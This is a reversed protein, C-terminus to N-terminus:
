QQIEKIEIKAFIFDIATVNFEVSLYGQGNPLANLQTEGLWSLQFSQDRTKQVKKTETWLPSGFNELPTNPIGTYFPDSVGNQLVLLELANPEYQCNLQDSNEFERKSSGKLYQQERLHEYCLQYLCQQNEWHSVAIRRLKSKRMVDIYRDQSTPVACLSALEQQWYLPHENVLSSSHIYIHPDSSKGHLTLIFHTQGTLNPIRKVPISFRFDLQGPTELSKSKWSINQPFSTPIPRIPVWIMNEANWFFAGLRKTIQLDDFWFVDCESLTLSNVQALQSTQEWHGFAVSKIFALLLTYLFFLYTKM